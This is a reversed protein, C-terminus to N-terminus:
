PSSASLLEQNVTVPDDGETLPLGHADFSADNVVELAGDLMLGHRAALAQLEGRSWLPQAGLGAAFAAHLADLGPLACGPVYAPAVPQAPPHPESEDLFISALLAASALADEQVRAIREPDLRMRPQPAPTPAPRARPAPAAVGYGAARLGSFLQGADLALLAFTKELVKAEKACIPGDAAAVEILFDGLSRRAAASVKLLRDNMGRMPLPVNGAVLAMASLRPFVAPRLTSWKALHEEICRREAANVPGDVASVQGALNALIAAGEFHPDRGRPAHTDDPQRYVAVASTLNPRNIGAEATPEIALGLQRLAAALKVYDDRDLLRPRSFLGLLDALPLVVPGAAADDHLSRLKAQAEPLWAQPPLQLVTDADDVRSGNKGVRRSYADLEAAAGKALRTLQGIVGPYSAIDPVDDFVQKVGDKPLGPNTPQYELNVRGKGGKPLPLGAGFKEQYRHEFLRKFHLACRQVATTHFLDSASLVWGLALAAPLPVNDRACQGIAVRLYCPLRHSPPFFPVPQARLLKGHAELMSILDLLASAAAGFASDRSFEFMLQMCVERIRPLEAYAATVPGKRDVCDLLVRRELGFLVMYGFGVPASNKRGNALWQLFQRRQDPHLQWYGTSREVDRRYPVDYTSVPLEVEIAGYHRNAPDPLGSQVYLMGGPLTFGAVSVVQGPPIWTPPIRKPPAPLRHGAVAAASGVRVPEEPSVPSQRM